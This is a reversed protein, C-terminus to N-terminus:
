HSSSCLGPNSFPFYFLWLSKYVAQGPLPPSSPSTSASQCPSSRLLPSSIATTFLLCLNSVVSVTEPFPWSRPAVLHAHSFSWSRPLWFSCHPEARRVRCTNPSGGAASTELLWFLVGYTQPQHSLGEQRCCGCHVMGCPAPSSAWSWQAPKAIGWQAMSKGVELHPKQAM